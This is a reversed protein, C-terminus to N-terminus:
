RNPKTLRLWVGLGGRMQIMGDLAYRVADPIDNNKDVIIPLIEKTTKDIKFSYRRFQLAAHPCHREHIVIRRFGRLHSIGDEIAGAWKEAAVIQFGQRSLYSITEPRANDAKIPWKRCTDITKDFFEAMEDIEIGYGVAERDIMLDEGFGSDNPKIWCRILATPDVSFGFDLGHYFRTQYPAEDFAEISVKGKFIMAETNRRTEGEWVWDYNGEDHALMHLRLQELEDPFWPNDRFSTKKVYANPPPDDGTFLVHLPDEDLDPNYSIWIQSGPARVTPDLILWNDRPTNNAEEIWCRTIGETSRVENINRQLGKFIFESGTRPCYISNQTVEFADAVGLEYIQRQVVRHVSDAISNQYQRTCLILHKSHFAEAVLTRAFSWSRGAGRGGYFCKYRIPTGNPLSQWALPAYAGPIPVPRQTSDLPM